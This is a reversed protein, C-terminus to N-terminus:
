CNNEAILDPRLCQAGGLYVHRVDRQAVTMEALILVRICAALGDEVGIELCDFLPVFQWGLQRAAAAPFAVQIDPTVSFLVAGIDELSLNNDSILQRLLEQTATLVDDKTVGM